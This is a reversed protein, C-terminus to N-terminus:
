ERREGREDLPDPVRRCFFPNPIPSNKAETCLMIYVPHLFSTWTQANISRARPANPNCIQLKKSTDRAPVDRIEQANIRKIMDERSPAWDTVNSGPQHNEPFKQTPLEVPSGFCRSNAQLDKWTVTDTRCKTNSEWHEALSVTRTSNQTHQHCRLYYGAKYNASSFSTTFQRHNIFSLHSQLQQRKALLDLTTWALSNCGSGSTWAPEHQSGPLSPPVWPQSQQKALCTWLTRRAWSSLFLFVFARTWNLVAADPIAVWLSYSNM